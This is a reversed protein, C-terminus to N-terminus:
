TFKSVIQAIPDDEGMHNIEFGSFSISGYLDGILEM